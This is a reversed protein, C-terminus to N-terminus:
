STSTESATHFHEKLYLFVDVCDKPKVETPDALIAECRARFDQDLYDEEIDLVGSHFAAERLQEDTVEWGLFYCLLNYTAFFASFLLTSYIYIM